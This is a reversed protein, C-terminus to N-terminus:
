QDILLRGRVQNYYQAYRHLVSDRLLGACAHRISGLRFNTDAVIRERSKFIATFAYALCRIM